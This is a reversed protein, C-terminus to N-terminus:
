QHQVITTHDFVGIEETPGTVFWQMEIRHPGPKVNTFVFDYSHARAASLDHDEDDDGSLQVDAPLGLTGVVFERDLLSRVYMSRNPAFSEASFRVVVCGPRTGHQTFSVTTEPITTFAMSSTSAGISAVAFSMRTMSTCKGTIAGARPATFGLALTALAVGVALNKKLM